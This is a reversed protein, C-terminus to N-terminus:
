IMGWVGLAAIPTFLIWQPLALPPMKKWLFLAISWLAFVAAILTWTLASTTEGPAFAPIAFGVSMAILTITVIHWCYYNTLKPTEPIDRAALLPAAVTPGGAFVHILLTAGAAAGAARLWYNHVADLM